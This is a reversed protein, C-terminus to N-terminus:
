SPQDKERTSNKEPQVGSRIHIDRQPYPIEIGAEALAEFISYYLQSRVAKRSVQRIDIWVLLEFNLSSDAYETFWVAPERLESVQQNQAAAKLLLETVQKPDSKYSVGVPVHIRILPDSLSYNTITNSTLDSNPVLYEINDRTWVKTAALGVERVAGVTDGVQIWDGKKIRRGFVLLFSSVLNAAVNQLGLGIGIGVAGALVMLVRLDLGVARMSFLLGIALLLYNLFTDIAYALGEELGVRPYVKYDLWARLLRSFLVFALVVLVAKIFIWLSLPTEGLVVVPFSLVRRIPELLGLLSLASLFVAALTIYLLAARMAKFLFQAAEDKEDKRGIWRTILQRILHYCLMIALFAGVVAWTKIWLVSCLAQYGFCWLLGTLFTYLMAPYYLRELVRVFIRYSRYPLDPFLAMISKKKLLLFLFAFVITLSVLFKLLALVDKPISFIQLSWFFAVSILAYLTVFRAVRFISLGSAIQIPLQEGTLAERLFNIVLAGITWLKLLRGTLTLWSAEYPLFIRILSFVGFLILPILSGALIRAISLFYPDLSSPIHAKLLELTGELKRLVKRQWFFGYFLVVLFALVVFSGVLGLLRSAERVHQLFGPIRSPLAVLGQWARRITKVDFGLPEPKLLPRVRSEMEKRERAITEEAAKQVDGPLSLGPSSLSKEQGGKGETEAWAHPALYGVSLLLAVFLLVRGVRAFVRIAGRSEIIGPAMLGAATKGKVKGGKRGHLSGLGPKWQGARRGGKVM